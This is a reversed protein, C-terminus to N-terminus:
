QRAAGRDGSRYVARPLHNIDIEIVLDSAGAQTVLPQIFLEPHLVKWFYDVFAEIERDPMGANGRNRMEQEAQKRWQKSYRYDVPYLM